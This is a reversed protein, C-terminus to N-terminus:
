PREGLDLFCTDDQADGQEHMQWLAGSSEVDAGDPIPKSQVSQASQNGEQIAQVPSCAYQLRVHLLLQNAAATQRDQRRSGGAASSLGEALDMALFFDKAVNQNHATTASYAPAAQGQQRTAVEDCGPTGGSHRSSDALSLLAAAPLEAAALLRDLSGLQKM